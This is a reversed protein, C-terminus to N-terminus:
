WDIDEGYFFYREDLVGVQALAERRVLWFWGTLVDVDQVRDYHFDWMLFGGFKGFGHFLRDLALARYFWNLPTPFRMCSDGVSGDRLLMKPGLMGITPNQEMYELMKELCGGPIKVDSNILAIYKGSCQKIGLNNAKAFGLNCNNQILLVHPHQERVMEPTGDTSANDVVVIQVSADNKYQLLSELCQSVVRKGNWTVIVISLSVTGQTVGSGHWIHIGSSRAGLHSTVGLGENSMLPNARM